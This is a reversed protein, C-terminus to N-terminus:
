TMYSYITYSLILTKDWECGLTKIAEQIINERTPEIITFNLCKKHRQWRGWQGQYGRAESYGKMKPNNCWQIDFSSPVKCIGAWMGENWHLSLDNPSLSFGVQERTAWVQYAM